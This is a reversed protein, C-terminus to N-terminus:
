FIKVFIKNVTPLMSIGRFIRKKENSEVMTGTCTWYEVNGRNAWAWAPYWYVGRRWKEIVSTTDWETSVLIWFIVCVMYMKVANVCSVGFISHHSKLQSKRGNWEVIFESVIVSTIFFCRLCLIRRFNHYYNVWEKWMLWM